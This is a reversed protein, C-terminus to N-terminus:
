GIKGQICSLDQHKMKKFYVKIPGKLSWDFEWNYHLNDDEDISGGTDFKIGLKSVAKTAAYLLDIKEKPIIFEIGVECEKQIGRSM